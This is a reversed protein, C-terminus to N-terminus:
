STRYRYAQMLALAGQAAGVIAGVGRAFAHAQGVHAGLAASIRATPFLVSQGHNDRGVDFGFSVSVNGAPPFEWHFTVGEHLVREWGDRLYMMPAFARMHQMAAVLGVDTTVLDSM